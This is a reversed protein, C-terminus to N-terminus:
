LDQTPGKAAVGSLRGATEDFIFTLWFVGCYVNLSTMSNGHPNLDYGPNAQSPIDKNCDNTENAVDLQIIRGYIGILEERFQCGGSQPVIRGDRAPRDRGVQLSSLDRMDGGDTRDLTEFRVKVFTESRGKMLVVRRFFQCDM